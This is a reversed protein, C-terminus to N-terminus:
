AARRSKRDPITNLDKGPIQEVQLLDRSQAVAISGAVLKWHCALGGLVAFHLTEHPGWFGPILTPWGTANGIAGISYCIGGAVAPIILSRQGSRWLLWASFGGIWGIALYIVAGPTTTISNFWIMRIVIGALTVSWVLTLVGWCRWGSFLCVHIPTFTAAIMVFIAVLDLRLLVTRTQDGAPSMHFLCSIIMLSVTAIAFVLVSSFRAWNGWVPQLLHLSLCAFVLAGVLHSFSSLPQYIGPLSYFVDM